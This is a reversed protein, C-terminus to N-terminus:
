FVPIKSISGQGLFTVNRSFDLMLFRKRKFNYNQFKKQLKRLIKSSRLIIHRQFHIIKFGVLHALHFIFGVIAEFHLGLKDIKHYLLVSFGLKLLWWFYSCLDRLKQLGGQLLLLKAFRMCWEDLDKLCGSITTTAQNLLIEYIKKWTHIRDLLYKTSSLKIKLKPRPVIPRVQYRALFIFM